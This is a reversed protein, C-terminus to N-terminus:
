ISPFGTQVPVNTGNTLNQGGVWHSGWMYVKGDTTLGKFPEALFKRLQEEYMQNRNNAQTYATWYRSAVFLLLTCYLGALIIKKM